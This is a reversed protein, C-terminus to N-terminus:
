NGETFNLFYHKWIEQWMKINSYYSLTTTMGIEATATAAATAVVAILIVITSAAVM